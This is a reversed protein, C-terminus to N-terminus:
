SDLGLVKAEFIAERKSGGMRLIRRWFARRSPKPERVRVLIDLFELRPALSIPMPAVGLQLPIVKKSQELGFRGGGSYHWPTPSPTSDLRRRGRGHITRHGILVILLIIWECCIALHYTLAALSTTQFIVFIVPSMFIITPITPFAIGLCILESVSQRV